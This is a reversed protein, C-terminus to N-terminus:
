PRCPALTAMLTGEIMAAELTAMSVISAHFARGCDGGNYFAALTPSAIQYAGALRSQLLAATSGGAALVADIMMQAFAGRSLGQDLATTWYSLMGGDPPPLGLHAYVRTVVSSSDWSLVTLSETSNGLTNAYSALTVLNQLLRTTWYSEEGLTLPRGILAIGLSQLEDSYTTIAPSTAVAGTANNRVTVSSPVLNAYGADSSTPTLTIAFTM